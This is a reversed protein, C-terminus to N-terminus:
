GLTQLAQRLADEAPGDPGRDRSWAAACLVRM